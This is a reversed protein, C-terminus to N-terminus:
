KRFSALRTGFYPYTSHENRKMLYDFLEAARAWGVPVDGLSSEHIIGERILDRFPMWRCMAYKAYKERASDSLICNMKAM